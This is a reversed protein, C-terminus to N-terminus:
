FGQVGDYIDSLLGWYVGAFFLKQQSQVQKMRIGRILFSRATIRPHEKFLNSYFIRKFEKHSVQSSLSSLLPSAKM